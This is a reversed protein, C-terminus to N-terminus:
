EFSSLFMGHGGIEKFKIFIAALINFAAITQAPGYALDFKLIAVRKRHQSEKVTLYHLLDVLYRGMDAVCLATCNISLLLLLITCDCFTILWGPYVDNGYM